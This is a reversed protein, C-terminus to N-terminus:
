EEQKPDVGLTWFFLYIYFSKVTSHAVREILQQDLTPNQLLFAMTLRIKLILRFLNSGGLSLACNM